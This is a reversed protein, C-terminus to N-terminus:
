RRVGDRDPRGKWAPFHRKDVLSRAEFGTLNAAPAVRIERNGGDRDHQDGRGCERDAAGCPTLRTQRRELRIQHGGDRVLQLRRERGHPQEDIREQFVVLEIRRLRAVIQLQHRDLVRAERAQDIVEQREGAELAVALSELKRRRVRRVDDM